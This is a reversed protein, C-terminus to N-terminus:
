ADPLGELYAELERRLILYRGVGEGDSDRNSRKARLQGSHVAQQLHTTSLGSAAAAGKLTYSLPESMRTALGRGSRRPLPHEAIM